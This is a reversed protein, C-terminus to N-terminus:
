SHFLARLFFRRDLPICHKESRRSLNFAFMSTTQLLIRFDLSVSAGEEVPRLRGIRWNGRSFIAAPVSCSLIQSGALLLRNLRLRANPAVALVDGRELRRKLARIADPAIVIDADVYIRPFTRAAHDGLNMAHTKSAVETEVVHVMPGFRRALEATDDTCGNCVVVVDLERLDPDGSWTSLTRAIVSSENHAPVVISTM